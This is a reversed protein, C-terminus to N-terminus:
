LKAFYVTCAHPEFPDLDPDHPHSADVGGMNVGIALVARVGDLNVVRGEASRAQEQFPLEVRGLERGQADISILRWEFAVPAEWEAQFGLVLDAPPVQDITLWILEAGTPDIARSSRVRRPLSSFPVLWDYRARAFSGAWSTFPPHLGDDRDGLFARATGFDAILDAMEVTDEDFGHRLVDYLDPENNWTLSGARTQNAAVALLTTSLTGSADVSRARELFDFFLAAGNDQTLENRAFLAREPHSAVDDVAQVDLSTIVGTLWWLETAYARRLSPSEGADLRFSLAEGVCLTAARELLAGSLAPALCFASASDFLGLSPADRAVVVDTQAPDLYLDLSDNGGLGGDAAPEPLRLAGVVREYASELAALAARASAEPITSPEQVCVPTRTSCLAATGPPREVESPFAPGTPLEPDILVPAHPARPGGGFLLPPDRRPAKSGFASAASLLCSLFLWVSGRVRM